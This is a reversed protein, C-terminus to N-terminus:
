NEKTESLYVSKKKDSYNVFYKKYMKGNEGEIKITLIQTKKGDKEYNTIFASVNVM